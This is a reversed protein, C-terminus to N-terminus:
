VASRVRVLLASGVALLLYACQLLLSSCSAEFALLWGYQESIRGASRLMELRHDQCECIFGIDCIATDMQEPFSCLGAPHLSTLLNQSFPM